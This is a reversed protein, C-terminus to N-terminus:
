NSDTILEGIDMLAAVFIVNDLPSGDDNRLTGNVHKIVQGIGVVHIFVLREIRALTMVCCAPMCEDGSV